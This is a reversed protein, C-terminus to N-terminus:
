KMYSILHDKKNWISALGKEVQRQDHRSVTLNLTGISEEKWMKSKIFKIFESMNLVSLQIKCFVSSIILQNLYSISIKKLQNWMFQKKKSQRFRTVSKKSGSKYDSTKTVNNKACLILITPTALVVGRGSYLSCFKLKDNWNKTFRAVRSLKFSLTNKSIKIGIYKSELTSQFKTCNLFYQIPSYLYILWSTSAKYRNM